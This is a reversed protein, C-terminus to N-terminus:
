RWPDRRQCSQSGVTATAVLQEFNKKNTVISSLEAEATGKFVATAKSHEETNVKAQFAYLAEDDAKKRATEAAKLEEEAQTKLQKIQNLLVQAEALIAESKETNESM